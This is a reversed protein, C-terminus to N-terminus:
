KRKTPSTRATAIRPLIADVSELCILRNFLYEEDREFCGYCVRAVGSFVISRAVQLAFVTKGTGQWGGVPVLEGPRMGGGLVVDLLGFATPEPRYNMPRGVGIRENAEAVLQSLTKPFWRGSPLVPLVRSKGRGPIERTM